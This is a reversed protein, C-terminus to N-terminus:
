SWILIYVNSHSYLVKNHASTYYHRSIVHKKNQLHCMWRLTELNRLCPLCHGPFISVFYIFSTRTIDNQLICLQTNLQHTHTNHTM